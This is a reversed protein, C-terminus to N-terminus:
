WSIFEKLVAAVTETDIGTREAIHKCIANEDVADFELRRLDGRLMRDWSNAREAETLLHGFAMAVTSADMEEWPRVPTPISVRPTPTVSYGGETLGNRNLVRRFTMPYGM